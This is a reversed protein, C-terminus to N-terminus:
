CVIWEDPVSTVTCENNRSQVRVKLGSLRWFIIMAVYIVDHPKKSAFFLL